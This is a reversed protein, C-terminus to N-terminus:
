AGKRRRTLGGKRGIEAMHARDASVAKGSKVGAARAEDTTFKHAAGAAWAAKGGKSAIRALDDPAMSAFGQPTNKRVYTM